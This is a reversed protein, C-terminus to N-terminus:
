ARFGQVSGRACLCMKNMTKAAATLSVDSRISGKELWMYTKSHFGLDPSIQIRSYLLFIYKKKTITLKIDFYTMQMFNFYIYIFHVYKLQAFVEKM